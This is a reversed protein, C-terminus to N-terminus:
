SLMTLLSQMMMNSMVHVVNSSRCCFGPLQFKWLNIYWSTGTGDLDCLNVLMLVHLNPRKVKSKIMNSLVVESSAEEHNTGAHLCVRM